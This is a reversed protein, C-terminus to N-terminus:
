LIVDKFEEKDLVRKAFPCLPLIKIKNDRAFGVAEMVLKKGLGKGGHEELVGTHDIIIKDKGAWTYTMEGAFEDNEHIVFRGKKENNEINISIM